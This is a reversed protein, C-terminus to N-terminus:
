HWYGKMSDIFVIFLSFVQFLIHNDFLIGTPLNVGVYVVFM